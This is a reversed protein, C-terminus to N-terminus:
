GCDAEGPLGSRFPDIRERHSVEVAIGDAGFVGVFPLGITPAPFRVTATVFACRPAGALGDLRVARDPRWDTTDRGHQELVVRARERAAAALALQGQHGVFAGPGAGAVTRAAGRAAAGVALRTDVVSWANVVLLTGTLLVLAGFALADLGGLFGGQGVRGPVATPPDTHSM